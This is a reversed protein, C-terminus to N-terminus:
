SELHWSPEKAPWLVVGEKEIVHRLSGSCDDIDVLDLKWKRSQSTAYAVAAFFQASSIGKAALDIDFVLGEDGRSLSGFLFVKQAGYREALGRAIQTALNKAESSSGAREKGRFPHYRKLQKDSLDAATISMILQGQLPNGTSKKCSVGIRM